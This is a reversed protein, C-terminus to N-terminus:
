VTVGEEICIFKYKPETGDEVKKCAVSQSHPWVRLTLPVTGWLTEKNFTFQRYGFSADESTGCEIFGREIFEQILPVVQRFTENPQLHYQVILGSIQGFEWGFTVYNDNGNVRSRLWEFDQKCRMWLDRQSYWRSLMEDDIAQSYKKM